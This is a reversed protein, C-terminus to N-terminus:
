ADRGLCTYIIDKAANMTLSNNPFMHNWLSIFAETTAHGRVVEWWAVVVALNDTVVMKGAKVCAPSTLIMLTSQDLSM